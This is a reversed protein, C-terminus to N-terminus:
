GAFDLWDHVIEDFKPAERVMSNTIGTLATIFPPINTEPNVLTGFEAVIQNGSVRYAGIETIRNPPIKAGTTEVDVVVFNTERLPRTEADIVALEVLAGDTLRLRADGGILDAVLLAALEADPRPLQLVFDAIEAAPLMGGRQRVLEVAEALLASDSVLRPHANIPSNSPAQTTMARCQLM